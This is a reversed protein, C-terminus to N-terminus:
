KRKKPLLALKNMADLWEKVEPDQMLNKFEQLDYPHGDASLYEDAHVIISGLLCLLTLGPNYPDDFENTESL